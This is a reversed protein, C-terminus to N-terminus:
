SENNPTKLCQNLIPKGSSSYDRLAQFERIIIETRYYNVGEKSLLRNRLEGAIMIRNSSRFKESMEVALRNWAVLHYIQERRDGEASFGYGTTLRLNLIYSGDSLQRLPPLDFLRGTLQVYNQM